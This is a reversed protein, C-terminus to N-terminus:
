EIRAFEKTISTKTKTDILKYNYKDYHITNLILSYLNEQIDEKNLGLDLCNVVFKTSKGKTQDNFLKEFLIILIYNVYDLKFTTYSIKIKNESQSLINEMIRKKKNKTSTKGLFLPFKVSVNHHCGSSAKICSTAIYPMLEWSSMELGSEFIDADSLSTSIDSLNDLNQTENKIKLRNNVYNEQIMLPCLDTDMWFTNYKMEFDHTQSLMINTIDFIGIQTNDKSSTLLTDKNYVQLNNLINRIDNNSNEILTRANLESINLKEKKIIGIIFNYIDTTSPKQFKIDTCYTAFTKLSPNYRDNCTCIIPINTEKICDILASIFGHDSSCDLDNVVLVNKGGFVNKVVKLIPKVSAKIHEKDREDDSNLEIINCRLSKLISEISLTKGIGCTGSVLLCKPKTQPTWNNLWQIINNINIKNGVITNVDVPKYKKTFM